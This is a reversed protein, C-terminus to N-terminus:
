NLEFLSMKLITLSTVADHSEHRGYYDFSSNLKAKIELSGNGTEALKGAGDKLTAKYVHGDTYNGTVPTNTTVDVVELQSADLAVDKTGNNYTFEVTMTKQSPTLNPDSITFYFDVDNTLATGSAADDYTIYEYKKESSSKESTELIKINPNEVGAKYAAVITNIFLKTELDSGSHDLASHGMGTYTVNGINYIYYNNRADNKSNRYVKGLESNPDDADDSLCYWVVVDGENDGDVDQDMHLQYYQYHTKASRFESGIEYPYHTILGDNEKTVKANVQGSRYNLKNVEKADEDIKPLLDNRLNLYQEYHGNSNKHFNGLYIKDTVLYRNLAANTFGHTQGYAQATENASNYTKAAYAIDREPSLTGEKIGRTLFYGASRSRYGDEYKGFGVADYAYVWGENVTAEGTQTNVTLHQQQKLLEGQAKLEDSSTTDTDATIGYRDMALVNRFANNMYYGWQRPVDWDESGGALHGDKFSHHPSVNIFSTTDHSFLVSKGSDIFLNIAEVGYKSSVNTSNYLDYYQDAFGIILMDYDALSKGLGSLKMNYFEEGSGATNNGFDRGGITDIEFRLGTTQRVENLYSQITADKSLNLINNSSGSSSQSTIQLVKVVEEEGIGDIKTYQIDSTRISKNAAQVMELKWSLVGLYTAPIERELYYRVRSTLQYNGQADKQAEGGTDANYIVCSMQESSGNSGSELFKGDANLDIYFKPNYVSAASAEVTSDLYFGVKVKYTGTESAKTKDVTMKSADEFSAGAETSIGDYATMTEPANVDFYLIKPKPLNLYDGVESNESEAQSVSFVNEKGKIQDLFQYLYSTNDVTDTNVTKNGNGDKQYLADSVIVPYNAGVYELLDTLKTKTIDNGSYRYIMLDGALEKPSAALGYGYQTQTYPKKYNQKLIGDEYTTRSRIATYYVGLDYGNNHLLYGQYNVGLLSNEKYRAYPKPEEDRFLYAGGYDVDMMGTICLNGAVYDGTHTYILGNMRKDNYATKKETGSGTTNLYDICAGLYILDYEKNLDDVKGIFEATSMSDIVVETGDSVGAWKRVKEDTLSFGTTDAAIADTPQIELVRFSDKVGLNRQRSYDIIYQLLFARTLDTSLKEEGSRLLNEQQVLSEVEGLGSVDAIKEEFNEFFAQREEPKQSGYIYVNEKIYDAQESYGDKYTGCQEWVKTSADIMCPVKQESVATGIASWVKAADQYTKGSKEMDGCVYIFDAKEIKEVNEDKSLESEPITSVEIDLSDSDKSSLVKTRFWDHNDLGFKYYIRGIQVDTEMLSEDMIFNYTGNEGVYYYSDGSAPIAAYLAESDEAGKYEYSQIYWLDTTEDDGAVEMILTDDVVVQNGEADKKVHYPQRYIAEETDQRMTNGFTVKYCGSSEEYVFKQINMEYAGKGETDAVYTGKLQAQEYNEKSFELTKWNETDTPFYAEEYGQTMTMPKNTDGIAYAYASQLKEVCEERVEKTNQNADDAQLYSSIYSDMYQGVLDQNEVRVLCGIEGMGGDPVIEVIQFKEQKNVKDTVKEELGTLVGQAEVRFFLYSGLGIVVAMAAAFGAIIKKKM